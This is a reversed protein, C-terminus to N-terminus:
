LASRVRKQIVKISSTPSGILRGNKGFVWVSPISTLKYQKAIPSNWSVINIKKLEVKPDSQALECRLADTMGRVAFKTTCYYTQTPIGAFGFISSINVINILPM